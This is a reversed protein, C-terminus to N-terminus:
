KIYLLEGTDNDMIELTAPDTRLLDTMYASYTATQGNTFTATITHTPPTETIARIFDNM